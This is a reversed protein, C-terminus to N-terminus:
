PAPTNDMLWNKALSSWDQNDVACDGNIDGVIPGDPCIGADHKRVTELEELTLVGASDDTQSTWIRVEDIFGVFPRDSEPAANGVAMRCGIQSDVDLQGYDNTPSDNRDYQKDLIVQQYETGTYFKLTNPDMPSTSGDYTIAVFRWHDVSPYQRPDTSSNIWSGVFSGQELFHLQLFDGRYNVQWNDTTIIRGQDQTDETRIWFTITFSYMGILGQELLTDSPAPVNPEGWRYTNELTLPIMMSGDYADGKVGASTITPAHSGATGVEYPSEGFGATGRNQWPASSIGNDQGGFPFYVKAEDLVSAMATASCVAVLIWLCKLAKEHM